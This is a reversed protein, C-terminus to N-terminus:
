EGRGQVAADYAALLASQKDRWGGILMAGRIEHIFARAAALEDRARVLEAMDAPLRDVMSRLAELVANAQVVARRLAAADARATELESLLPDAYTGQAIDHLAKCTECRGLGAWEWVHADWARVAREITRRKAEEAKANERAVVLAARAQDLDSQRRLIEAELIDIAGSGLDHIDITKRPEDSM